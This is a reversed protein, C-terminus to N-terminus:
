SKKAPAKARKAPKGGPRTKPSGVRIELFVGGVIKHGRRQYVRVVHTSGEELHPPVKFALTMRWLQGADVPLRLSGRHAQLHWGDALAMGGMGQDPDTGKSEGETDRENEPRSLLATGTAATVPRPELSHGNGGAPRWILHPPADFQGVSTGDDLLVKVRGGDLLEISAPPRDPRFEGGEGDKRPLRVPLGRLVMDAKALHRGKDVIVDILGADGDVHGVLFPLELFSAVGVPVTAYSLNRQTANNVGWFYAALNCPDSLSDSPAGRLGGLGSDNDARAEALLCPHWAAEPPIQAAPWVVPGVIKTAHANVTTPASPGLALHRASEAPTTWDGAYWDRPYNFEAGPLGQLSPYNGVVINLTTNRATNDGRNHVRAYVYHDTVGDRLLDENVFTTDGDAQRRVILDPYEWHNGPSPVDGTDTSSDRIYLDSPNVTVRATYIEQVGTRTDTWAPFFGLRSAALGFYDGIFTVNPDGHSFPADVTPDWAQDTVTQKDTFSQGGNQSLALVTDILKPGGVTKPGFEYFACGIEGTPMSALQPHFNHQDGAPALAGSLLPQGNAPGQWSSGGNGSHRAYIRAVGDRYDAWAVVVDGGTGCAANCNTIVRFTGGPLTRWGDIVPATSGAINTIGSVAVTPASFSDGGDISKVFKVQNGPTWFIYLSGDPAVAMGPYVSDGALTSGAAEAVGGTTIGKWSMGQDTTRAFRLTSGDDWATYVNGYHPSAPNTDAVAWQKDDGGSSHILNPPSWSRGGDTSRYIAIGITASAGPTIPLAVLYANGASDWALAPDSLGGWGPQLALPPAETWTLGGDFSAYAALSFDYTAPNTFRKSSSVLNNPNLPNVAIQSESRANSPSADCTVRRNWPQGLVSPM